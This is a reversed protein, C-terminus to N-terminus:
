REQEILRELVQDTIDVVSSWWQLGDHDTRLIVTFGQSEAIYVIAQQLRLLFEENTLGQQQAQLDKQRSESLLRIDASFQMIQANLQQSRENDGVAQAQEYQQQLQALQNLQVDIEDQYQQRLNELRRINTLTSFFTAHIRSIDVIGVTTLQETSATTSVVGFMVLLILIKRIPILHRM